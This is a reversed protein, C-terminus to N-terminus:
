GEIEQAVRETGLVEVFDSPLVDVWERTVVVSRFTSTGQPTAPKTGVEDAPIMAPALGTSGSEVIWGEGDLVLTHEMGPRSTPDTFSVRHGTGGDPLAVRSVVTQPTALIGEKGTTPEQPNESLNQLVRIAAARLEPGASDSMLIEHVGKFVREDESNNGTGARLLADLAVPDTPWEQGTGLLPPFVAWFSGVGAQRVWSWGEADVYGDRETVEGDQESVTVVHLYAGQAQAPGAGAAVAVPELQVAAVVVGRELPAVTTPQESGPDFPTGSPQTSAVAPVTTVDQQGPSLAQLGLALAAVGATAAVAMPIWTRRPSVPRAALVEDLVARRRAPTFEADIADDTPRISRLEHM